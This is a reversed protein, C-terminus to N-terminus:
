FPLSANLWLRNKTLSGDQDHIGDAAPAPHTGIRRAWTAKLNLGFSAKWGLAVGSGKLSYSNGPADNAVHGHDYFGTLTFNEPLKWRLELTALQGSAGGAESAPYARVGSAGGLYFQESTDLTEPADQGDLAAYLSLDSTIVQQRSLSYRLKSFNGDLGL